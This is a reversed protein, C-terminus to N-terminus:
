HSHYVTLWLTRGGTSKSSSDTLAGRSLLRLRVQYTRDNNRGKMLYSFREGDRYRRSLTGASSSSDQALIGMFFSLVVIGIRLRIIM